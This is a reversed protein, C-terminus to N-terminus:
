EGREPLLRYPVFHYATFNTLSLPCLKVISLSFHEKEFRRTPPYVAAKNEICM